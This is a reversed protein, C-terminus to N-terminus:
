GVGFAEAQSRKSGPTDQSLTVGLVILPNEWLAVWGFTRGSLFLMPGRYLEKDFVKNEVDKGLLCNILDEFKYSFKVPVIFPHFSNQM